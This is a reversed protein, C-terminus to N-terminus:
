GSLMICVDRRLEYTQCICQFNKCPKPVVGPWVVPYERVGDENDDVRLWDSVDICFEDGTDQDEFRMHEIFWSPTKDPESFALRVKEIEGIAEPKLQFQLTM